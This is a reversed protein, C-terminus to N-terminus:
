VGGGARHFVHCFADSEMVEKASGRALVTKDLLVVQDAYKDLVTFDHTTMLISLDYTKRIEDLMDMLAGMGEVDVGSLPEDLILINPLPELALALLVRQLEGGSLTGVRKDILDEGHVRSLCERVKEKMAKSLGLFAPRKSMCCAFLDAVTVPDGADFTPSQPVYGIRPRRNREGPASFAIVGDYDRQGLVAKLFTSKGAGNPGILAVLEGCHVHMNVDHLIHEGGIKVSMDQVRLCCADGCGGGHFFLKM